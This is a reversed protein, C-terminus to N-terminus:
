NLISEIPNTTTSYDDNEVMNSYYQYYGFNFKATPSFYTSHLYELFHDFKPELDASLGEPITVKLYTDIENFIEQDNLNLFLSGSIVRWAQVLTPNKYWKHSVKQKLHKM